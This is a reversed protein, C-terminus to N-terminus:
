FNYGFMYGTCRGTSRNLLKPKYIKRYYFFLPVTGLAQLESGAKGGGLPFVPFSVPLPEALQLEADVKANATYIMSDQLSLDYAGQSNPLEFIEPMEQLHLLKKSAYSM